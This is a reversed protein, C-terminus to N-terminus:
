AQVEAKPVVFALGTVMLDHEERASLREGIERLIDSAQTDRWFWRRLAAASASGPQAAAAEFYYAKVDELSLRIIDALSLDARPSPPLEPEFLKGLLDGIQDMDLGSAGVSTRGSKGLAREYWPQLTAFEELLLRTVRAAGELERDQRPLSLPCAWAEQGDDRAPADLPYDELVPGSAAALLALAAVLM